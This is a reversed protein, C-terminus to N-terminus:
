SKGGMSMSELKLVELIPFPTTPLPRSEMSRSKYVEISLLTLGERSKVARLDSDPCVAQAWEKRNVSDLLLKIVL